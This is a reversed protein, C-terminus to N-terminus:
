KYFEKYWTVFEKIGEAVPTFPQFGTDRKLASCDAWTKAIDGEQMPAFQINAKKGLAEELAHVFDMLQVPAGNGINYIASQVGTIINGKPILDMTRIIGEVIDDIYTFDREMNGNNFVNIPKDEIISKTFIFLAMDPRGCPGYVTFFRLGTTPIRYLHSYTYAMQENALKTAAYLSAPQAVMDNESFPSKTNLGYVSSTSAYVLHRPPHKRAAELVNMFGQINSSIYVNPNTLSYRVGAQAALHLIVDFKEAAFLENLKQADCIDIKEFRLNPFAELEKLRGHKLEVDYYDNINDIGIIDHGSQALRRTLHFGIFGAAGTVLLKM